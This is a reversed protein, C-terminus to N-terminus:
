AKAVKRRGSAAAPAPAPSPAPAPAPAPASVVVTPTPASEEEEEQDEDDADEAFAAKAGGVVPAPVDETDDVDEKFMDRATQRRRKSVQVYTPRWTVGFNGNIVWISGQAVIKASCGKPFTEPLSSPQVPIDTGDEGIVEMSVKGDYVPVKFRLSPPYKGNPSWVGDVKDVSVSLFEKFSDKLSEIGRTKGFWAASNKVAAQLVADQLERLFNYSKSVDDSGEAATRAYPDCGQFSASLTYSTTAPGGKFENEKVLVGGPFGIQPFRFQVNQKRYQFSVSVGGQKNRRPEAFQIDSASIKSINVVAPAAM